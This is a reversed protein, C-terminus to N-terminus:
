RFKCNLLFILSWDSHTNNKQKTKEKGNRLKQKHASVDKCAYMICIRLTFHLFAGVGGGGNKGGKVPAPSVAGQSATISGAIIGATNSFPLGQFTYFHCLSDKPDWETIDMIFFSLFDFLCFVRVRLSVFSQERRSYINATGLIQFVIADM